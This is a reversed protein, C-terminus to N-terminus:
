KGRQGNSSQVHIVNTRKQKWQRSSIDGMISGKAGKAWSESQINGGVTSCKTFTFIYWIYVYILDASSLCVSKPLSPPPPPPPPPLPQINPSHPHNLCRKARFRNPCTSCICSIINKEMWTHWHETICEAWDSDKQQLCWYPTNPSVFECYSYDSGNTLWVVKTM